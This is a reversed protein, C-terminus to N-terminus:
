MPKKSQTPQGGGACSAGAGSSRCTAASPLLLPSRSSSIFLSGSLASSSTICASPFRPALHDGAETRREDIRQRRRALPQHERPPQPRERHEAVRRLPVLEGDGGLHGLPELQGAFELLM